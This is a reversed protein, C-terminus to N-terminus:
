CDEIETGSLMLHLGRFRHWFLWCGYQVSQMLHMRVAEFFTNNKRPFLALNRGRFRHRINKFFSGLFTSYPGTSEEQFKPRCYICCYREPFAHWCYISATSKETETCCYHHSRSIWALQSDSGARDSFRARARRWSEGAFFYTSRVSRELSREQFDLGRWSIERSHTGFHFRM